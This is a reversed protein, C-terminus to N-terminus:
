SRRLTQSPTEGHRQKYECSFRGMHFFGWRLAGGAMNGAKGGILEARAREMRLCRLYCMPSVGLFVKFGAYLGRMGVGAVQALQEVGIPEHAHALLYEQAQRVHRLLIVSPRAFQSESYNAPADHAPHGRGITRSAVGLYGVVEVECKTEGLAALM